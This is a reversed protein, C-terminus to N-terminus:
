FIVLSIFNAYFILALLSVGGEYVSTIVANFSGSISHSQRMIQKMNTYMYWSQCDTM